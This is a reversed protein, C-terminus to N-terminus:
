NEKNVHKAVIENKFYIFTIYLALSYITNSVLKELDYDLFQNIIVPALLILFLCDIFTLFLQIQYQQNM